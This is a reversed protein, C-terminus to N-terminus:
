ELNFTVEILLTLPTLAGNASSPEFRWQSLAYAANRDLEPHLKRVVRKVTMRGDTGIVGELVVTGQIRALRAADSYLPPVREILKPTAEGNGATYVHVERTLSATELDMRASRNSDSAMLPFSRTAIWGAVVVIVALSAYSCVLRRRSIAPNSLLLQLRESLHRSHAFM